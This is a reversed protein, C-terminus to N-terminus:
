LLSVVLSSISIIQLIAVKVWKLLWRGLQKGLGVWKDSQASIGSVLLAVVGWFCLVVRSKVVSKQYPALM